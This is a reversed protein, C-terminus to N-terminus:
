RRTNELIVVAPGGPRRWPAASDAPSGATFVQAFSGLVLDVDGDGDVDGADMTLWRGRAAGAFTRPTFRLAGPGGAGGVHELYVFPLPASAGYDAYFATAAVDVDGDGDFDRAVAKFAGPMAFFYREAFKGHGDNLFIRVGQYPKAPSPFDGNDGSTHVIDPHGDGNV